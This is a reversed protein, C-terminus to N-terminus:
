RAADPRPGDTTPMTMGDVTVRLEDITRGSDRQVTYRVAEAVNAVVQGAPVGPALHINVEVRLPPGGHVKVGGAEIGVRAALREHWGEGAVAAVGYSARAAARVVGAIKTKSDM